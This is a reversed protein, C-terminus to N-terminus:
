AVARFLLVIDSRFDVLSLVQVYILNIIAFSFIFTLVSVVARLCLFGQVDARLGGM